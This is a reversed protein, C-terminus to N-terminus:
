GRVQQGEELRVGEAEAGGGGAKGAEGEGRGGEGRPGRGRRVVAGGAEKVLVYIVEPRRGRKQRRPGEDPPVPCARPLARGPGARLPM